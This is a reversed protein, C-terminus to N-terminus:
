RSLRNKLKSIFNGSKQNQPPIMIRELEPNTLSQSMELRKMTSTLIKQIDEDFSSLDHDKGRLFSIFQDKIGERISHELDGLNNIVRDLIFSDLDKVIYIEIETTSSEEDNIESWSDIVYMCPGIVIEKQLTPGQFEIQWPSGMLEVLNNNGDIAGKITYIVKNNKRRVWSRAFSEDYTTSFTSCQSVFVRKIIENPEFISTRNDKLSQFKPNSKLQDILWHGGSDYIESRFLYKDKEPSTVIGELVENEPDDHTIQQKVSNFGKWPHRLLKYLIIRMYMYYNLIVPDTINGRLINNTTTCFTGDGIVLVWNWWVILTCLDLSYPYKIKSDEFSIINPTDYNEEMFMSKFVLRELTKSDLEGSTMMEEFEFDITLESNNAILEGSENKGGIDGFLTTYLGYRGEKGMDREISNFYEILNRNLISYIGMNSSCTNLDIKFLQYNTEQNNRLLESLKNELTETNEFFVLGGSQKINKRKKTKRTNRKRTKKKKKKKIKRKKSKKSKIKSGGVGVTVSRPVHTTLDPRLQTKHTLSTDIKENTKTNIERLRSIIEEQTFHPIDLTNTNTEIYNMLYDYDYTFCCNKQSFGCEEFRKLSTEDFIENM